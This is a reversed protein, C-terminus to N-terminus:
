LNIQNELVLGELNHRTNKVLNILNILEEGELFSVGLVESSLMRVGLM